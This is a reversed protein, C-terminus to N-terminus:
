AVKIYTYARIRGTLRSPSPPILRHFCCVYLRVRDITDALLVVGSMQLEDLGCALGDHLRFVAAVPDAM